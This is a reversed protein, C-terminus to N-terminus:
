PNLLKEVFDMFAPETRKIKSKLLHKSIEREEELTISYGKNRLYNFMPVNGCRHIFFANTEINEPDDDEANVLFFDKNKDVFIDETHLNSYRNMCIQDDRENYSLMEELIFVLDQSYGMYSGSNIPKSPNFNFYLVFLNFKFKNIDSPNEDSILNAASDIAAIAKFNYTRKLDLFREKLENVNGTMIVDYADVFCIITDPEQEKLFNLMLQYKTIFGNWKTGLGLIILDTGYRLCSEKLWKLYLVDNTAVTVIKIDM